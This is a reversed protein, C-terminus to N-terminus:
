RNADGEPEWFSGATDHLSQEALSRFKAARHHAAIVQDALGFAHSEAVFLVREHMEFAALNDAAGPDDVSASLNEHWSVGFKRQLHWDLADHLGINEFDTSFLTRTLTFAWLPDGDQAYHFHFCASFVAAYLDGVTWAPAVVYRVGRVLLAEAV